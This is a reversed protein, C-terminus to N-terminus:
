FNDDDKNSECDFEDEEDDYENSIILISGDGDFVNLFNCARM